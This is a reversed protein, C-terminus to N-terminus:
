ASHPPLFATRGAHRKRKAPTSQTQLIPEYHSRDRTGDKTKLLEVAEFRPFDDRTPPQLLPTRVASERAAPVYPRTIGPTQRPTTVALGHTLSLVLHLVLTLMLLSLTGAAPGLPSVHAEPPEELKPNAGGEADSAEVEEGVTGSAENPEPDAKPRADDSGQKEGATAAAEAPGSDAEPRADDSGQEEGAAAATEAPGSGAEPRAGSPRVSGTSKATESKEQEEAEQDQKITLRWARDEVRMKMFLRTKAEIDRDVIWLARAYNLSAAAPGIAADRDIQTLAVKSEVFLRYLETVDHLEQNLLFLLAECPEDLRPDPGPLEQDATPVPGKEYGEEDGTPWPRRAEFAEWRAKELRDLDIFLNFITAGRPSAQKGYIATLYPLADCYKYNEALEILSKFKSRLVEFKAPSDRINYLGKELVEAQTVDAVDHNIQLHMLDRQHELAKIALAMEAGRSREIQRRHWRLSAIDEIVMEQSTNEPPTSKVLDALIRMRELPDEHLIAMVDPQVQAYCGHKFNNQSSVQKGRPTVPGTSKKANQQNAAIQKETVVKKKTPM